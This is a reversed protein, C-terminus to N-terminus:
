PEGGGIGQARLRERARANELAYPDPDKLVLGDLVREGEDPFSAVLEARFFVNRPAADVAQHLLARAETRQADDVTPDLLRAKAETWLLMGEREQGIRELRGRLIEVAELELSAGPGRTEVASIGNAVTWLLCNSAAVPLSQAADRTVRFGSIDLTFTFSPWTLLCRYGYDQGAEFHALADEPHIQGRTWEGKALRALVHVDDPHSGLLDLWSEMAADLNDGQARAEWLDDGARLAADRAASPDVTARVGCGLVM